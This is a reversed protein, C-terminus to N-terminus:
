LSADGGEVSNAEFSVHVRGVGEVFQVGLSHLFVAKGRLFHLFSQKWMLGWFLRDFLQEMFLIYVLNGRSVVLLIGSLGSPQRTKRAMQHRRPLGPMPSPEGCLMEGGPKIFNNTM